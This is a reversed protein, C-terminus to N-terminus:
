LTVMRGGADRYGVGFCGAAWESLIELAMRASLCTRVTAGAASLLASALDVADQDDDVVVVRLRDLRVTNAPLAVPTATPHVRSVAEIPIQVISLPLKVIFTAGKGEGASEAVVSGGHLEALHKALALGLGLGTHARASSPDGQRFRDFIFPLM